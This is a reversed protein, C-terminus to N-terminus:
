VWCLGSDCGDFFSLQASATEDLNATALPQGSRHLRTGHSEFIQNDLNVALNWEYLSKDRLDRWQENSMHPCMWCSSKPPEPWGFDVVTQICDHRSMRLTMALPYVHKCWQVDSPKMRHAEDRSIGIWLEVPNDPGYGLSRLYRMVVRRKWENSCLTPLKGTATFAPILLDGNKGYLDVTALTHPAIHVTLGMTALLPNVYTHLYDWTAGRERGTDAMVILDPRPLRGQAILVCSAITQKGGGYSLIDNM